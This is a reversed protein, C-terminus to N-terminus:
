LNSLKRSLERYISQQPPLSKLVKMAKEKIEDEMFGEGDLLGEYVLWGEIDDDKSHLQYKKKGITIEISPNENDDTLMECLIVYGTRVRKKHLYSGKICLHALAFFVTGKPLHRLNADFM